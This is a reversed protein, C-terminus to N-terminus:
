KVTVPQGDTLQAAGEIVVQEGARVGSVLEVEGGLRKGTKVLRLQATPGAVVFVMEMQGRVVLAPAPVRLTSTEGVPVAVRGFAGSRLGPTPPLDLKVRFTRSGPDAV